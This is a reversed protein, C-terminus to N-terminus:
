CLKVDETYIQEPLLYLCLFTLLQFGGQVMHNQELNYDMVIQDALCFSLWLSLSAIFAYKARILWVSPPKHLGACTYMFLITNLSSWVIISTYLLPCVWPAPSYIKLSNVLFQYNHDKAWSFNLWHLHSLAGVVDTWLAILCWLAWFLIIIKKFFLM